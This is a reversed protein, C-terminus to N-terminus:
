LQGGECLGQLYREGFDERDAASGLVKTWEEWYAKEVEESEYLRDNHSNTITLQSLIQSTGLSYLAEVKTANTVVVSTSVTHM